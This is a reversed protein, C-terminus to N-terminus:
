KLSLIVKYIVGAKDDSIYIAGDKSFLIDVPRGLVENNDTLWGAIFDEEGQVSGDNDFMYRVIKYGTPISRNWSGHYAVLLDGRYESPWGTEPFFALGLPASHAPIDIYSPESASTIQKAIQSTSFDSDLINKGYCYPWGYNLGEKIINIEDPPLDDGLFDRGMETAWLQDTTNNFAMFVSNRLGSAFLSFRSGDKKMIYIAAYRKDKELCLNCTSGISVYLSGDPGFIITRTFHRGGPPLDIIKQLTMDGDLDTKSIKNEEAIFLISPDDPDFALGHPNRLGEFITKTSVAIGNEIEIESIKGEGTQSVWLNGYYDEVLVRAGPLNDALISISFGKKLKLPSNDYSELANESSRESGTIQKSETNNPSGEKLSISKSTSSGSNKLLDAIKASPKSFAPIAGRFNNWMLIGGIVILVFIVGVISFTIIRTKKSKM